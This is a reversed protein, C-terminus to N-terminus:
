RGALQDIQARLDEVLKAEDGRWLGLAVDVWGAMVDDPVSGYTFGSTKERNTVQLAAWHHGTDYSVGALKPWSWERTRIAGRFVARSTTLTLLGAEVITPTEDGAVFTGHTKGVRVRVSGVPVSVGASRGQWRGAGRRPEVLGAGHLELVARERAHLILTSGPDLRGEVVALMSELCTQRFEVPDVVPHGAHHRGFM